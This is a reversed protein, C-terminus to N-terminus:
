GSPLWLAVSASPMVQFRTSAYPAFVPRLFTRWTIFRSRAPWLRPTGIKAGTRSLRFCSPLYVSASIVAATIEAMNVTNTFLWFGVSPLGNPSIIGASSSISRPSSFLMSSPGPAMISRFGPSSTWNASGFCGFVPYSANVLAVMRIIPAASSIGGSTM